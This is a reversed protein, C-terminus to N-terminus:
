KGFILFYQYQLFPEQRILRLGAKEADKVVVDPSVREEPPPGPGTGDLKFDVIGIRGQPKLARALNALMTVRDQIEPYADVILVADLSREPLRPNSGVGLVPKVNTLGERQVRRSIANIMGQQVDEAYVLGQPGVRRALHITFWGSGAGIDGVVSADAIGMADMIQDPPQWLHRDPAELLGLDSPPFLRGQGTPTQASASAALLLLAASFRLLRIPM